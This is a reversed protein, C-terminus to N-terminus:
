EAGLKRARDVAIDCMAEIARLVEEERTSGEIRERMDAMIVERGRGDVFVVYRLGPFRREYEENLEELERRQSDSGLSKQENQSQTSDIKKAGLRPHASLISLLIPSDPSLSQLSQKALFALSSYSTLSTSQKIKPILLTHFAPSPEFLIDLVEKITKEELAHLTAAPPLREEMRTVIIQRVESDIRTETETATTTKRNSTWQRYQAERSFLLAFGQM